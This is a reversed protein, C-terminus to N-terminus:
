KNFNQISYVSNIEPEYSYKAYAAKTFSPVDKESFLKGNKLQYFLNSKRGCHGM